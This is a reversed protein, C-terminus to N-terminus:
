HHAVPPHPAQTQMQQQAPQKSRSVYNTILRYSEDYFAHIDDDSIHLLMGTMWQGWGRRSLQSEDATETLAGIKDQLICASVAKRNIEENIESANDTKAQQISM